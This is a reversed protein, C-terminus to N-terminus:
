KDHHRARLIGSARESYDRPPCELLDHDQDEALTHQFSDDQRPIDLPLNNSSKLMYQYIQRYDNAMNDLLEASHAFHRVLEQRYQELENKNKELQSQLMRKQYRKLSGFRMALIGILIGVVLNILAYELTM